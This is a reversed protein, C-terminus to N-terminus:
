VIATIDGQVMKPPVYIELWYQISGGSKGKQVVHKGVIRGKFYTLKKGMLIHRKSDDGAYGGYCSMMTQTRRALEALQTASVKTNGYEEWWVPIFEEIEAMEETAQEYMDKSNALFDDVEAAKLIGGIVSAWNEFSGLTQDGPMCENMFWNKVFSLMCWVMYSRNSIVFGVIDKIEHKVEWPKSHKPELRSRVSRRAIEDSLTLNNATMLWLANNPLCATENGGLIRSEWTDSTLLSAITASDLHGSANDMLVIQPSRLLATTIRKDIERDDKTGLGISRASVKGITEIILKALITKGSGPSSAEIYHMPSPGDFLHRVFPLLYAALLNAREAKNAFPFEKWVTDFIFKKAEEVDFPKDPLEFNKEPHYYIQTEYDYGPNTILKGKISFYPVSTIARLHPLYGGMTGKLEGSMREPPKEHKTEGDENMTYYDAVQCILWKFNDNTMEKMMLKKDIGRDIQVPIGGHEFLCPPENWQKVADVLQCGVERWPKGNLIIKPREISVNHERIAHKEVISTAQAIENHNIKRPLPVNTMSAVYKIADQFSPVNRYKVMFDFVSIAEGTRFSHFWGREHEEDSGLYVGASPHKDGSPSSPDRCEFYSGKQVGTLADGYIEDLNILPLAMKRWEPFTIETEGTYTDEVDNKKSLPKLLRRVDADNIYPSLDPLVSYEFGAVIEGPEYDTMDLKLFQNGRNKAAFHWPMWVMNGKNKTTDQKPFVEVEGTNNNITSLLHNPINSLLVRAFLRIDKAPVGTEFFIWIHYGAGSGSREIHPHMKHSIVERVLAGCLEEPHTFGDKHTNGDIDLCLWKSTNSVPEPTYTGCRYQSFSMGQVAVARGTLHSDIIQDLETTTLGTIPKPKRNAGTRIAITDTRNLFWHKLIEIRTM